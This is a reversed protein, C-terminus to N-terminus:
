EGWSAEMTTWPRRRKCLNPFEARLKEEVCDAICQLIAYRESMLLRKIMISGKDLTECTKHIYRKACIVIKYLNQNKTPTGTITVIGKLDKGEVVVDCRTKAIFVNMVRLSRHGNMGSIKVKAISEAVAKEV